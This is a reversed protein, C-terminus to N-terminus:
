FTECMPLLKAIIAKNELLLFKVGFIYFKMLPWPAISIESLVNGSKQCSRHRAEEKKRVDFTFRVLATNM